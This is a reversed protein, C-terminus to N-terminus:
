KKILMQPCLSGGKHPEAKPSSSSIMVGIKEKALLGEQFQVWFAGMRIMLNM